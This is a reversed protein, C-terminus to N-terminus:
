EISGSYRSPLNSVLDDRIEESEPSGPEERESGKDRDTSEVPVASGEALGAYMNRVLEIRDADFETGEKCQQL